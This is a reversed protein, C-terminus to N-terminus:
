AGVTASSARAMFISSMSSISFNSSSSTFLRIYPTKGPYRIRSTLPVLYSPNHCIRAHLIGAIFCGQRDNTQRAAKGTSGVDLGEPAVYCCADFRDTEKRRFLQRCRSHFPGQQLMGVIDFGSRHEIADVQKIRGKEPKSWTLCRNCVRLM